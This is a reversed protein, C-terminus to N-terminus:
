CMMNGEFRGSLTIFRFFDVSFDLVFRLILLKFLCFFFPNM